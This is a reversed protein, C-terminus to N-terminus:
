CGKDGRKVKMRWYQLLDLMTIEFPIEPKWDTAEKIKACDGLLVQVDSPRMRNPDLKVEIDKRDTFSLLIDLMERISWAKGTCANYAEGHKGKNVVLWYARVMDRVDTWDRLADLNGVHMVPEYGCEILAIQKAFTSTVFQEGRRPGTHNFGRTVIVKIGYSKNYQQSLLDAAVKSVGYPSLPRLPNLETIPTESNYVLGYEESSGAVQIVTDQSYERVAELINLTGIVNATITAAPAQWSLPVFSQAALHFLYDPRLSKIIHVIGTYDTVDAEHYIVEKRVFEDRSRPRKIGHVEINGVKDLLYDALHSGVFATVGTILAKM